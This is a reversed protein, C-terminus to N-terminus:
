RIDRLGSWRPDIENEECNCDILNRNGGCKPCLGRCEEDCVIFDPLGLLIQERVLEAIDIRDDTAVSEDLQEGALELETESPGSTAEVFVSDFGITMPRKIQELCRDCDLLVAAKISGRVHAKDGIRETEFTVSVNGELEVGDVDFGIERWGFEAEFRKPRPVIASLEIIMVLHRSRRHM